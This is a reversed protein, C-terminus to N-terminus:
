CRFATMEEESPVEFVLEDMGLASYKHEGMKHYPLLEVSKVRLKGIFDAIRGM